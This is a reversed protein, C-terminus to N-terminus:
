SHLSGRGPMREEHIDTVDRVDIDRIDEKSRPRQWTVYAVAATWTPFLDLGPILEAVLTPIFAWHWGILSSLIAAAAIDVATDAPSLGGFAFLPLVIIQIADAAIAVTWAMRVERSRVLEKFMKILRM